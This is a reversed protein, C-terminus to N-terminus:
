SADRVAQEALPLVYAIVQGVTLQKEFEEDDIDIDFEQELDIALEVLALEDAYLDDCLLATDTAETTSVELRDAIIRRIRNTNIM